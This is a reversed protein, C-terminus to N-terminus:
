EGDGKAPQLAARVADLTMINAHSRHNHCNDIAIEADHLAANKRAIEANTENRETILKAILDAIQQAKENCEVNLRDIEDAAEPGAEYRVIARESRLRESLSFFKAKCEEYQAESIKEAGDECLCGAHWRQSWCYRTHHETM